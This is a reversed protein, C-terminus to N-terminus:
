VNSNTHIETFKVDSANCAFFCIMYLDLFYGSCHPHFPSFLSWSYGDVNGRRLLHVSQDLAEASAVGQLCFMAYILNICVYICVFVYVFIYICM